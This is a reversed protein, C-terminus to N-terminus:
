EQNFNFTILDIVKRAADNLDDCKYLKASENTLNCVILPYWCPTHLDSETEVDDDHQVYFLHITKQLSNAYMIEAITGPCAADDLVFVADTCQEIMQKECMIIDEAKMTEAEFYFPGIYLVNDNICVGSMDKPKLLSQVSGLIQARYDEAATIEFDEDRCDFAFAGGFFLKYQTDM